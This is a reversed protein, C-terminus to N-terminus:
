RALEHAVPPRLGCPVSFRLKEPTGHLPLNSRFPPLERALASLSSSLQSGGDTAVIASHM